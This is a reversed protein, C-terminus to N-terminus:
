DLVIIHSVLVITSIIIKEKEKAGGGELDRMRLATVGADQFM